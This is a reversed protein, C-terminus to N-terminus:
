RKRNFPFFEITSKDDTTVPKNSAKLKGDFKGRQIIIIPANTAIPM